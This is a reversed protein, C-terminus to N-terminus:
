RSSLNAALDQRAREIERGSRRAFDLLQDEGIAGVNFYQSQAHSLYFGSVSSAPSMALNSTLSLGIDQCALLEFMATKVGHDPCAPYGPAPRIGQYKEAIMQEASFAEAKAYGWWQTRVQWHLYEAYAEALRDALAKFMIASYDDHAQEFTGLMREMGIGTTLAFVGVHDEHGLPAVFDSLCRNPQARPKQTQQRLGHWVMLPEQRKEDKWIVIDDGMSNAAYLGVVANAQLWKARVL